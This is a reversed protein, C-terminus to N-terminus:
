SNLFRWKTPDREEQNPGVMLFDGLSDAGTAALPGSEVPVWHGASLPVDQHTAAPRM